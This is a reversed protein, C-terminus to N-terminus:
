AFATAPGIAASATSASRGPVTMGAASCPTDSGTEAAVWAMAPNPGRCCHPTSRFNPFPLAIGLRARSRARSAPAVSRARVASGTWATGPRVIAPAAARKAWLRAVRARQIAFRSAAADITPRMRSRLASALSEPRPAAGAPGLVPLTAAFATRASAAKASVRRAAPAGLPPNGRDRTPRRRGTREGSVAGGRGAAGRSAAGAGSEGPRIPRQSSAPVSLSGAGGDPRSPEASRGEPGEVGCAPLCAVLLLVCCRIKNM